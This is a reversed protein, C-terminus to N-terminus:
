QVGVAIYQPLGNTLKFLAAGYLVSDMTYKEQTLNYFQGKELGICIGKESLWMAMTGTKPTFGFLGDVYGGVFGPDVLVSTGIIANYDAVFKNEFKEPQAGDIFSQTGDAVYIGDDVAQLLTIYGKFRLFGKRIDVAEPYLPDSIYLKSGSAVYLRGNYWEILQGAPMTRKYTKSPVTFTSYSMTDKNLYGIDVGNTCFIKNVVEVYRMTANSSLNAVVTASDMSNSFTKLQSADVFLCLDGNSFLSHPATGSYLSTYGQRRSVMGTIDLDVNVAEVLEHASARAKTVRLTDVFTNIGRLDDFSIIPTTAM